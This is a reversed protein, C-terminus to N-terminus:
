HAFPSNAREIEAAITRSVAEGRLRVLSAKATAEAGPPKALAEVLRPVDAATGLSGVARLAAVRVEEAPSALMELVSGRATPDGRDALADLLGAQAEPELKALLAAFRRTAAPGKAADRVQQLGLARMDKDKDALLNAITELQENDGNGAKDGDAAARTGGLGAHIALALMVWFLLNSKKM